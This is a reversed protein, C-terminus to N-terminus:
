SNSAPLVGAETYSNASQQWNLETGTVASLLTPLTTPFSLTNIFFCACAEGALDHGLGPQM